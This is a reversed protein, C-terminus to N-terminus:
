RTKWLASFAKSTISGTKEFNLVVLLGIINAFVGVVVDPSLTAKEYKSRAECLVRLNDSIKAYEPEVPSMDGLQITLREIEKDLAKSAKPNLFTDM